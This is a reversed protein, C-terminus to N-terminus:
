LSKLLKKVEWTDFIPYHVTWNEVYVLLLQSQNSGKFDVLKSFCLGSMYPYPYPYDSSAAKIQAIGYRQEYERIKQAYAQKWGQEVGIFSGKGSKVGYSACIKQFEDSDGFDNFVSLRSQGNRIARIWANWGATDPERGMLVRYLLKVYDSDSLNKNKFEDSFFFGYAVEKANNQGTLLANCWANLGATDANRGLCLQYCRIVFKTVNENQDRPETLVANGRQIGYAQCIRTFEQSEAFGRFVHMRSLGSNLVNKWANLGANDASRDLFTVYLLKIYETDSIKRSQFEKSEIFGQAVKAGQEKGSKLVNTWAAVGNSDAERGLINHYLRVVFAQVPDSDFSAAADETVDSTETLQESEPIEVELVDAQDSVETEQTLAEISEAIESSSEEARVPISPTIALCGTLLASLIQKRNM